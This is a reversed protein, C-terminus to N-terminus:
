LNAKCKNCFHNIHNPINSFMTHTMQRNWVFESQVMEEYKHDLNKFTVFYLMVAMLVLFLFIRSNLYSTQRTVSSIYYNEKGEKDSFLEASCHELDLVLERTSLGM